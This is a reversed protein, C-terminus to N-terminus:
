IEPFHFLGSLYSIVPDPNETLADLVSRDGLESVPKRVLEPIQAEVYWEVMFQAVFVLPAVQDEYDAPVGHGNWKAVEDVEVGAIRAVEENSLDLADQIQELVTSDTM